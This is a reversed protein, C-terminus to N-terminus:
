LAYNKINEERMRRKGMPEILRILGILGIPGMLGIQSILGMGGLKRWGFIGEVM